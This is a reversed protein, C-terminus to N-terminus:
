KRGKETILQVADRYSFEENEENTYYFTVAQDYEYESTALEDMIDRISPSELVAGNKTEVKYM